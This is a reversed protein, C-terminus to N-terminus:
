IEGTKKIIGSTYTKVVLAVGFAALLIIYTSMALDAHRGLDIAHWAAASIFAIALIGHFVRWSKYKIPLKKRALSIIGLILMLCWAVLGLVVGRSTYTTIITVFADVPDIGSEFFRPVVLFFPHFLLVTVSIYGIIKHVKKLRNMKLDKLACSNTRTFYFLGMMSCFALITVASLSEKLLTREPFNGLALIFLPIGSFVVGASILFNSKFYSRM